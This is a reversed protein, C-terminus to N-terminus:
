DAYRLRPISDLNKKGIDLVFVIDNYDKDNYPNTFSMDEFGLVLYDGHAWAMVHQAGDINKTKDTGWYTTSSPNIAGNVLLSPNLHDSAQFNFGVKQGPVVGQATTLNMNPLVCSTSVCSVNNFILTSNTQTKLYFSNQYGAGEDVFIVSGAYDEIMKLKTADLQQGIAYDEAIAVSESGVYSNFDSKVFTLAHVNSTTSALGVITILTRIISNTM